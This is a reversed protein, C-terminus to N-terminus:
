TRVAHEPRRILQIPKVKQKGFRQTHSKFFGCCLPQEACQECEKRYNNKWDSISQVAIPRLSQSIHCRPINYLVTDLGSRQLVHTGELLEEQYNNLDCWVVEYNTRAFGTPELGMLAVTSVFPINRAIFESLEVINEIIPRTLVIRLEIPEEAHGLNYLGHMTKNFSGVTQTHYDHQQPTAGYIPIGWLRQQHELGIVQEVYHYDEFATGNTLIHLLTTPLKNKAHELLKIFKDRQVTPEGGSIGLISIDHDILELLQHCEDFRWGDDQERPPQSCMICQHNCRETVFLLNTTSQRRYLIDVRNENFVIVDGSAIAEPHDLKSIVPIPLHTPINDGSQIAIAGWGLNLLEEQSTDYDPLLLCHRNDCIGRSVYEDIGLVKLMKSGRFNNVDARTKLPIGKIM